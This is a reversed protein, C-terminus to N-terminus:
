FMLDFNHPEIVQTGGALVRESEIRFVTSNAVNTALILNASTNINNSYWGPTWSGGGAPFFRVRFWTNLTSPYPGSANRYPLQIDNCSSWSHVTFNKSYAYWEGAGTYLGGGYPAGTGTNSIYECSQIGIGSRAGNPVPDAQATATSSGIIAAATALVTLSKKFKMNGGNTENKV